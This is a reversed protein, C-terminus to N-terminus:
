SHLPTRLYHIAERLIHAGSLWVVALYLGGALPIRTLLLLWPNHLTRTCLWAALMAGAAALAFPLIDKLAMHLPLPLERRLFAHWALLWTIQLAAYCAVMLRIGEVAVSGVVPLSLTLHWGFQKIACLLALSLIGQALINWMYIDSRRRSILFHHYLATIPMFAGAVCLLQMLEASPLWKRGVTVVILPAACLALGFLAPFAILATFRLMKRFARVLRDQDDGVSVFMPQAVSQVMGTILQSGMKNWKDAQTYTGVELKTYFRGFALTFVSNNLTNFVNTILLKCSFGFMQRIPQWSFAWLPRFGSYAWSLAATAGVFCLGQTALSWYRAGLLAMAIGVTGSLALSCLTIITQERVRLAKYLMARPAVSLSALVFSLSAFRTLAVLEPEGFFRAILPAAAFLLAYMLLSSGLNFWFVANFDRRTADQRNILAAIFGGEQLASALTTFLTVESALGYDSRSLLNALVIGFVLNLVQMSGNNVLGWALGRATKEKLSGEAM